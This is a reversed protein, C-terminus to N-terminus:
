IKRKKTDFFSKIGEATFQVSDFDHPRFFRSKM